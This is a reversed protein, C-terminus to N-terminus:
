SASSRPAPSRPGKAALLQAFTVEAWQADSSLGTLEASRGDAALYADVARQVNPHDHSPFCETVTPLRTPGDGLHAILSSLFAAGFDRGAGSFGGIEM